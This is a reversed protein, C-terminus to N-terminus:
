YFNRRVSIPLHRCSQRLREKQTMRKREFLDAVTSLVFFACVVIAAETAVVVVDYGGRYGIANVLLTDGMVALIAGTAFVPLSHRGMKALLATERTQHFLRIVPWDRCAIFVYTLALISVVRLPSQLSKSAGALFQDNRTVAWDMAPQYVRCIYASFVFSGILMTMAAIILLGHRPVAIGARIGAGLAVGIAFILNWPLFTMALPTGTISDHEVLGLSGSVFWVLAAPVIPYWYKRRGLWIYFPAVLMILVYLRLVMSFGISQQLTAVDVVLKVPESKLLTIAHAPILPLRGWVVAFFLFSAGVVVLNTLYLTASRRWIRSVTCLTGRSEVLQAYALYSSVGAILVFADASDAFSMRSPSIQQLMSMSLHNVFINLLLFGRMADIAVIRTGM